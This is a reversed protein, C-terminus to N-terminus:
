DGAAVIDVNVLLGEVGVLRNQIVGTSPLLAGRFFERRVDATGRYAAEAEPVISDVVMLVDDWSVGAAILVREANM